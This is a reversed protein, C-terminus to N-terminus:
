EQYKQLCHTKQHFQVWKRQLKGMAVWWLNLDQFKFFFCRIWAWCVLSKIFVSHSYLETLSLFQSIESEWRFHHYKYSNHLYLWANFMVCFLHNIISLSVSHCAKNVIQLTGLSGWALPSWSQLLSKLNLFCFYPRTLNSHTSNGSFQFFYLQLYLRWFGSSIKWIELQASILAQM